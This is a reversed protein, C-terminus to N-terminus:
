TVVHHRLQDALRHGVLLTSWGLLPQDAPLLVNEPPCPRAVTVALCAFFDAPQDAGKEVTEVM